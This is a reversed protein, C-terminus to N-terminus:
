SKSKRKKKTKPSPCKAGRRTIALFLKYDSCGLEEYQDIIEEYKVEYVGM